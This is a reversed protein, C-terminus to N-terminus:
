RKSKEQLFRCRECRRSLEKLNAERNIKGSEYLKHRVDERLPSRHNMGRSIMETVLEDHRQYLTHVEVLGGDVYGQMRKGRTITGIFMHHEVHEGLLHQNCLLKPDVHWQRM